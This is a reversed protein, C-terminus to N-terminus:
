RRPGTSSSGSSSGSSSSGSERANGAPASYSQSPASYTQSPASYSQTPASYTSQSPTNYSSPTSSQRYSNYNSVERTNSAGSGSSPAQYARTPAYRQPDSVSRQPTSSNYAAPNRYGPSTYENSSRPRSNSPSYYQQPTVYQQPKAYRATGTPVSQSGTAKIYSSPQQTSRTNATRPNNQPDSIRNVDNRNFPERTSNVRQTNANSSGFLNNNGNGAERQSGSSVVSGSGAVKDKSISNGVSGSTNNLMVERGNTPAAASKLGGGGSGGSFASYHQSFATREGPTPGNSGTIDRRPGYYARSNQDYSNSYGGSYSYIGGYSGGYFGGYYPYGLGYYGNLYNEYGFGYPSLGTGYMFPSNFSYFFPSFPSYMDWSLSFMDMMYNIGYNMGWRPGYNMGWNSYISSGWYGPNYDYWYRNTYYDHYYDNFPSYQFRRIRSAYSYDYYDDYNFNNDTVYAGSDALSKNNGQTSSVNNGVYSDGQITADTKIVVEKASKHFIPSGKQVITTKDKPNYYVEDYSQGQNQITCATLVSLVVIVSTVIKKM